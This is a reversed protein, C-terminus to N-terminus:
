TSWDRRRGTTPRDVFHPTCASRQLCYVVTLFAYLPAQTPGKVDIKAFVPFEAGMKRAFEQIEENTGPEQVRFVTKHCQVREAHTFFLV